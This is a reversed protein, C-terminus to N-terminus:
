DWAVMPGGSLIRGPNDELVVRAYDEDTKRVVWQWVSRLEPIRRITGHGDSAIAHVLGRSVLDQALMQPGPGFEGLISGRNVQIAYGRHFWQDVLAPHRRVADYREPHALVPCYGLHELQNLAQNMEGGPTDFFFEVLLYNGQGLSPLVGERGLEMTGPVVLVEAGLCLELPIDRQKLERHLRDFTDRIKSFIQVQEWCGTMHPTAALQGIGSELAIEAMGVSEEWDAAGDDVGPLIHCHIDVMRRPVDDFAMTQGKM